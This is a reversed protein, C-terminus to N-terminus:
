ALNFKGGFLLHLGAGVPVSVRLPNCLRLLWTYAPMCDTCLVYEAEGKGRELGLLAPWSLGKLWEWFSSFAPGRDKIWLELDLFLESFWLTKGSNSNVLRFGPPRHAASMHNRGRGWVAPIRVWCRPRAACPGEIRFCTANQSVDPGLLDSSPNLVQLDWWKQWRVTEASGSHIPSRPGGTPVCIHGHASHICWSRM